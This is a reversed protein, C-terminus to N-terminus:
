GKRKREGGEGGRIVALLEPPLAIAGGAPM